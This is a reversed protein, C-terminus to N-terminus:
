TLWCHRHGISGTTRWSSRDQPEMKRQERLYSRSALSAKFSTQSLIDATSITRQGVSETPEGASTELPLSNGVNKSEENEPLGLSTAEVPSRSPSMEPKHLPLPDQLNLSCNSDLNTIFQADLRPDGSPGRYPNGLIELRSGLSILESVQSARDAAVHVELGGDIVFGRMGGDMTPLIERLTGHIIEMEDEAYRSSQRLGMAAPSPVVRGSFDKVLYTHTREGLSSQGLHWRFKEAIPGIPTAWSLLLAM